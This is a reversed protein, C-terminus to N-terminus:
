AAVGRLVLISCISVSALTIMGPPWASSPKWNTQVNVRDNLFSGGDIWYRWAAPSHATASATSSSIVGAASCRIAKRPSSSALKKLIPDARTIAAETVNAIPMAAAVATTKKLTVSLM